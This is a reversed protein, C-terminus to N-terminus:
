KTVVASMWEPSSERDLSEYIELLREECRSVRQQEPPALATRTEHEVYITRLVDRCEAPLLEIARAVRLAEHLATPGASTRPTDRISYNRPDDGRMTALDGFWVDYKGLELLLDAGRATNLAFAEAVTQGSITNM